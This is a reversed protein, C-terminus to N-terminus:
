LAPYAAIVNDPYSFYLMTTAIFHLALSVFKAPVLIHKSEEM